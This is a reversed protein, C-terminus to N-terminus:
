EALKWMREYIGTDESGVFREITISMRGKLLDGLREVDPIPFHHKTKLSFSNFHHNSARRSALFELLATEYSATPPSHSPSEVVLLRQLKPLLHRDDALIRLISATPFGVEFYLELEEVSTASPHSLCQLIFAEDLDTTLRLFRLQANSRTLFSMFNPSDDARICVCLLRLAPVTLVSLLKGDELGEAMCLSHLSRLELVDALQPPAIFRFLGILICQEINCARRLYQSWMDMPLASLVLEKLQAWKLPIYMAGTYGSLSVSELMPAELFVTIDTLIHDGGNNGTFGFSEDGLHLRKLSPLCHRVFPFHIFYEFSGILHLEELQHSFPEIINWVATSLVGSLGPDTWELSIWLPCRRARSLWADLLLCIGESRPDVLVIASWLRPTSLAIERWQSCIQSLLLPGESPLPEPKRPALFNCFIESFIEAPVRSMACPGNHSQRGDPQVREKLLRVLAIEGEVRQQLDLAM